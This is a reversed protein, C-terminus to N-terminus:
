KGSTGDKKGKENLITKMRAIDRRINRIQLPNKTQESVNACKLQFLKQTADNLKEAIEEPTLERIKSPKM